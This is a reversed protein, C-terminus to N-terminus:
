LLCIKEGYHHLSDAETDLCCRKDEHAALELRMKSTWEELAEATDLFVFDRDDETEATALAVGGEENLIHRSM